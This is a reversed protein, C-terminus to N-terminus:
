GARGKSRTNQFERARPCRRACAQELGQQADNTACPAQNSEAARARSLGAVTTSASLATSTHKNRKNCLTIPSSCCCPLTIRPQSPAASDTGRAAEATAGARQLHYRPAQPWLRARGACPAVVAEVCTRYISLYVSLYFVYMCIYIIHTHTHTHIYIHLQKLMSAALLFLKYIYICICTHM